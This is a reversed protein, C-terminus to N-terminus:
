YSDALVLLLGALAVALLVIVPWFRSGPMASVPDPRFPPLDPILTASPRYPESPEEDLKASAPYRHEEHEIADLPSIRRLVLERFEEETAPLRRRVEPQLITLIEDMTSPRLPVTVEFGLNDALRCALHVITLLSTEETDPNDHHRGAVVCFNSPLRWKEALLRGAEAHDIGFKDREYDILDICQASAHRMAEVYEKPFAVVMSLRGIDHMLGSTYAEDMHARCARALEESVVACALTHTWCRKLEEVNLKGKLYVDSAATATLSRLQDIGLMTLAHRVNKIENAIGYLPSNAYQLVRASLAPDSSILPPISSLNVSPDSLLQLVKIAIPPFSPVRALRDPLQASPTSLAL